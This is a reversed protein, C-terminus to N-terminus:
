PALWARAGVVLTEIGTQLTPHIVPAFRPNHNTPLEERRRAKRAREYVKADTGGVFWFVSPMHGESGFCGFDESASSPQGEVVRSKAFYQQFADRVRASAASDNVVMAYRDLV